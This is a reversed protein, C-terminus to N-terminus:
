RSGVSRALADAITHFNEGAGEGFREEANKMVLMHVHPGFIDDMQKKSDTNTSLKATGRPEYLTGHHVSAIRFADKVMFDGVAFFRYVKGEGYQAELKKIEEDARGNGLALKLARKSSFFHPGGGAALLNSLEPNQESRWIGTEMAMSSTAVAALVAALCIKKIM